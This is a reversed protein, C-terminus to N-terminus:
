VKFKRTSILRDVIFVDDPLPSSDHLQLHHNVTLESTYVDASSISNLMRYYGPPPRTTRFSAM